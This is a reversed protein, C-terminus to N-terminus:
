AVETKIGLKIGDISGFLAATCDDSAPAIPPDLFIIHYYIKFCYLGKTIQKNAITAPSKTTVVATM